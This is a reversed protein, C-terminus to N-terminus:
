VSTFLPCKLYMPHVPAFDISTVIAEPKGDIGLRRRIVRKRPKAAQTKVKSTQQGKAEKKQTQRM